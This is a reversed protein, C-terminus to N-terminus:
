SIILLQFNFYIPSSFYRLLMLSSCARLINFPYILYLGSKVKLLSYFNSFTGLNMEIPFPMPGLPLALLRIMSSPWSSYATLLSFYIFYYFCSFPSNDPSGLLRDLCFHGMIINLKQNISNLINFPLPIYSSKIM